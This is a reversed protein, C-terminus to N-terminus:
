ESLSVRESHGCGISPTELLSVTLSPKAATAFRLQCVAHAATVVKWFYTEPLKTTRMPSWGQGRRVYSSVSVRATPSAGGSTKAALLVVRYDASSITAVTKSQQAAGLSVSSFALALLAGAVVLSRFIM